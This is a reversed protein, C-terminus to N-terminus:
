LGLWLTRPLIGVHETLTFDFSNLAPNIIITIVNFAASRQMITPQEPRLATPGDLASSLQM